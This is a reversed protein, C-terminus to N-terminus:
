YLMWVTSCHSFTLIYPTVNRENQLVCPLFAKRNHTPVYAVGKVITPFVVAGVTAVVVVVVVIVLVILILSSLLVLAVVTVVVSAATAAEEEVVIVEVVM